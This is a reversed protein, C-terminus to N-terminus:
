SAVSRVLMRMWVLGLGDLVIGLVLCWRGISTSVLAAAGTQGSLAGLGVFVVPLGALVRVSSEAQAVLARVEGRVVLQHRAARAAEELARASGRSGASAMTLVGVVTQQERRPPGTGLAACAEDVAQGLEIATHVRRFHRAAAGPAAAQRAVAARFSAGTRLDRAMADLAIPIGRGLQERHRRGARVVLVSIFAAHAVVLGAAAGASCLVLAAVGLPLAAIGLSTVLAWERATPEIRDHVGVLWAPVDVAEGAGIGLRTVPDSM